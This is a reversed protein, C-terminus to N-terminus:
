PARFAFDGFKAQACYNTEHALRSLTLLTFAYMRVDFQKRGFCCHVRFFNCACAPTISNASTGS